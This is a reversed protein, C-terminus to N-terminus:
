ISCMRKGSITKWCGKNPQETNRIKLSIVEIGEIGRESLLKNIEKFIEENILDVKEKFGM